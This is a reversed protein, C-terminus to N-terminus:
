HDPEITHLAVYSYHNRILVTAFSGSTGLAFLDIIDGLGALLLRTRFRATSMLFAPSIERWSPVLELCM